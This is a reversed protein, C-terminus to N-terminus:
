GTAELYALAEASLTTRAIQGRFLSLVNGLEVADSISDASVLFFLASFEARFTAALAEIFHLDVGRGILNTRHANSAGEIELILKVLSRLWGSKAGELQPAFLPQKQIEPKLDKGSRKVILSDQLGYLERRRMASLARYVDEARHQDPFVIVILTTTM